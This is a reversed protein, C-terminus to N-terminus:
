KSIKIYVFLFNFYNQLMNNIYIKKNKNNKNNNNNNNIKSKKNRIIM